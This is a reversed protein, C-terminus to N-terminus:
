FMIQRAAFFGRQNTLQVFKKSCFKTCFIKFFVERYARERAINSQHTQEVEKLYALIKSM